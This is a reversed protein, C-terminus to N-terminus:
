SGAGVGAPILTGGKQRKWLTHVFHQLSCDGGTHGIGHKATSSTISKDLSQAHKDM